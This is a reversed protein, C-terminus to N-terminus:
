GHRVLFEPVKLEVLLQLVESPLQLADILRRIDKTEITGTNDSDLIGFAQELTDATRESIQRHLSNKQNQNTAAARPTGCLDCEADSSTLTEGCLECLTPESCDLSDGECRSVSAAQPGASAADASLSIHPSRRVVPVAASLLEYWQEAMDEDKALIRLSESGNRLTILRGTRIKGFLKEHDRKRDLEITTSATLVFRSPTQKDDQKDDPESTWSLTSNKLVFYRKQWHAWSFVTAGKFHRPLKLLQARHERTASVTAAKPVNASTPQPQQVFEWEDSSRPSKNAM